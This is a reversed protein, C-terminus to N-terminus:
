GKASSQGQATRRELRHVDCPCLDAVAFAAAHTEDLQGRLQPQLCSGDAKVHAKTYFVKFENM